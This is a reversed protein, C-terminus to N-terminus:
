MDQLEGEKLCIQKEISVKLDTIKRESKEKQDELIKKLSEVKEQSKKLEIDLSRKNNEEASLIIIQSSLDENIKKLEEKDANCTIVMEKHNKLDEELSTIKSQTFMLTDNHDKESQSKGRELCTIKCVLDKQNKSAENEIRIIEGRLRENLANHQKISLTQLKELESIQKNSDEVANRMNKSENKLEAIHKENKKKLVQYDNSEEQFSKIEKDKEQIKNKHLLADHEAKKQQTKLQDEVTEKLQRVEIDTNYKLSSLSSKLAHIEECKAESQLKLDKVTSMLLVIKSKLGNNNQMEGENEVQFLTDRNISSLVNKEIVKSISNSEDVKMKLEENLSQVEDKLCQNHVNNKEIDKNLAIIINELRIVEGKNLEEKKDTENEVAAINQSQEEICKMLKTMDSEMKERDFNLKLQLSALMEASNKEKMTMDNEIKQNKDELLIMKLKQEENRNFLEKNSVQLFKIKDEQINSAQELDKNSVQLFKIKNEQINSVQEL